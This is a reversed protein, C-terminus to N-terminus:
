AIVNKFVTLPHIAPNPGAYVTRRAGTVAYRPVVCSRCLGIRTTLAATTCGCISTDNLSTANTAPSRRQTVFDARGAAVFDTWKSAPRLINSTGAGDYPILLAAGYRRQSAETPNIDNNSTLDGAYTSGGATYTYGSTRAGILRKMRIWDGASLGRTQQGANSMSSM